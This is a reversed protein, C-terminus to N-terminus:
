NPIRIEFVRVTRDESCSALQKLNRPQSETESSTPRWAIRHIQDAHALNSDMTLDLSWVTPESPTSSYIVIHGNELGIALRWRGDGDVSGFDVATAAEDLKITAVAKWKKASHDVPQWIKVQKDRAATAFLSGNPAWACDWIIRAHAKEAAIPIYGTENENRAFLQWTRDRSVSLIYRDDSSFSIRTITLSHGALPEGFPQFTTSDYLRIVAHDPTTAKCSTAIIRGSTSVALAYLEYGHGFLKEVEPWLTISALEGEFPPRLLPESNLHQFSEDGEVAAKNSLGLPPVNAGVPRESENIDSKTIDLDSLLRAFLRPADFVRAVKEDAVSVFRLPTIFASSILDYGHIQPRALEHWTPSPSHNDLNSKATCPGFIRTTQDLSSSIIYDGNPSWSLSKVPGNHATVANSEAWLENEGELGTKKWRRWCGNWGWAVVQDGGGTWLCGVFGGAKVGGIDGFRQRSVWVPTPATTPSWLIVSADTSTSLITPLGFTASKPRWTISTVHSEHGILLADFTITFQRSKGDASRVSLLHSRNSLRRGGEGSDGFDALSREFEDLLDDTASQGQFEEKPKILWLRIYGDQSGSALTLSTDSNDSTGMDSFDLCRIWDEHGELNVSLTFGEQSRLYIRVHKETCAVAMIVSTSGPLHSLKIDLPFRGQTDITQLLQLQEQGSFDWIKLKADSGGSVILNQFVGLVSIAKEHAKVTALRKWQENDQWISLEGKDDASVVTREDLFKVCTIEGSSANITRSVAPAEDKKA